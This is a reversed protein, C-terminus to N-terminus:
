SSVSSSTETPYVTTVVVRRDTIPRWGSTPRSTTGHFTIWQRVGLRSLYKAVAEARARALPELMWASRREGRSAFGTVYVLGGRKKATTAMKKLTQQMSYTLQASGKAFSLTGPIETGVLSASGAVTTWEFTNGEAINIGAPGGPSLGIDNAFQVVVKIKSSAYPVSVTTAPNQPDVLVKIRALLKNSRTTVSILAYTVPINADRASRVATIQTRRQNVGQSTVKAPAPPLRLETASALPTATRFSDWETTTPRGTSLVVPLSANGTGVSNTATVTFSYQTSSKLNNVICSFGITTCRFRQSPQAVETAEVSYATVPRGGNTAPATWSVSMSTSYPVMVGITPAGPVTPLTLSSTAAVSQGVNNVARVSVTLAIGSQLGNITCATSLASSLTCTGNNTTVVYSSIANGGDTEPTRWSVRASAGTPSEISLDRPASPASLPMVLATARNEESEVSAVSTITVIKTEYLRSPDLQTFQASRSQTTLRRITRDVSQVTVPAGFTGGRQKLYVEYHVFVGPGYTNPDDWTVTLSTDARTGVVNRAASITPLPILVEATESDPGVGRANIAAVSVTYSAGNVLGVLTCSQLLVPCDSRTITPATASQATVVYSLLASGGTTQPAVYGVTLTGDGSSISAIHPASPASPVITIVRTVSSAAAFTSNGPQSVEVTCSGITLASFIGTSSVACVSGGQTVAFNVALGSSASAELTFEPSAYEVVAPQPFTIIQNLKGIEITQTVSSAALWRLDGANSATLTCLGAAVFTVTGNAFTCASGAGSTLAITPTLGSTAIATPTYTSSVVPSSPPISTFALTQTGQLVTLTQGSSTISNYNMSADRSARVVCQGTDSATVVGSTENVSCPGSLVAFTVTGSGSGGIAILQHTSGFRMSQTSTFVLPSQTAKAVVLTESITGQFNQETVTATVLYTGANTPAWSSQYTTGDIGQYTIAVSKGSPSTSSSVVRAEGTFTQTLLQSALQVTITQKTITWSSSNTGEYNIDNVTAAANYTGANTPATATTAYTTQGTGTYSMILSLSSPQTTTAIARPTGNYVASLAPGFVISATAKTIFGQLTPQSLTYNNADNGSLQLGSVTVLKASPAVNANAFTAVYASDNLTVSDGDIVGNFTYASTSLTAINTGDYVRSPVTIGSVTITLPTINATLSTPSEVVYRHAHTGSLSLGTVTISKSTGINKNAFSAGVSSTNLSVVDSSVVGNLSSSGFLVLSTADASGDYTKNNTTAGSITLVKPSVVFSRTSSSGLAVTASLWNSDGSQTATVTCTGTSIIRVTLSTPVDCVSSPSASISVALGSTASTTVTFQPDGYTKASLADFSLTQAAKNITIVVPTSTRSLYNASSAKTATLSCTGAGDVTLTTGNITCPDGASVSYTVAGEGSGGSSSLSVTTKNPAPAYTVTTAAPIVSLSQQAAKAISLTGSQYSVSYNALRGSALTLSSPTVSYTGANTPTVTSASYSTGGTGAYTYTVANELDGSALGTISFTSQPVAGYVISENDATVVVSKQLVTISATTSDSAYNGSTPTFTVTLTHTGADLRTGSTPSYTFTGAVQASANLQTASLSTGFTIDSPNTWSLGANAQTITASTAPQSLTYNTADTGSISIGSISVPKNNGVNADSFSAALSAFSM